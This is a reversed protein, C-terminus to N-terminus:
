EWFFRYPVIDFNNDLLTNKAFFAIFFVVLALYAVIRVRRRFSCVTNPILIWIPFLLYQAARLVTDNGLILYVMLGVSYIETMLCTVYVRRQEPDATSRILKYMGMKGGTSAGTKGSKFFAYISHPMFLLFVLGMILLFVYNLGFYIGSSRITHHFLYGIFQLVQRRFGLSVSAVFLLMGIFMSLNSIFFCPLVILCLLASRHITAALVILLIYWLVGFRKSELAAYFGLICISTAMAQRIATMNFEFYIYCIFILTSFIPRASYRNVIMMIPILTVLDIFALFVLFPLKLHAFINQILVYGGEFYVYDLDFLSKQAAMRYLLEYGPFDRGVSLSRLTYVLFVLLFTVYLLVTKQKQKDNLGAELLLFFVTVSLLLIYITM